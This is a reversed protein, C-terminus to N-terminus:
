GPSQHAVGLDAFFHTLARNLIGAQEWQLFHGAGRVVFPGICETFAVASKDPFNRWVVHDEPGYLALTPVPNTEFLRPIESVQRNGTAVEYCGWSTRLKVPDAFPETMFRIDDPGFTGPAAWLRHGYFDAIYARRREPTDLESALGDADSGQRLFYDATPRRSRDPDPAVGAAEYAEPITPLM